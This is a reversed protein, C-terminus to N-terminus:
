TETDTTGSGALRPWAIWVLVAIVAIIFAANAIIRKKPM